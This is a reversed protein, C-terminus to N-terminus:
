MPVTLLAPALTSPYPNQYTPARDRVDTYIRSRSKRGAHAGNLVPGGRWDPPTLADHHDKVFLM